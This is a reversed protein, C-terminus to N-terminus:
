NSIKISSPDYEGAEKFVADYVDQADFDKKPTRVLVCSTPRKTSAAAGLDHKSPVFM